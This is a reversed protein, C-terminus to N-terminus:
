SRTNRSRTRSRTVTRFTTRPASTSAALRPNPRCLLQAQAAIGSDRRRGTANAAAALIRGYCPVTAIEFLDYNGGAGDITTTDGDSPHEQVCGANTIAGHPTFRNQGSNQSVFHTTIKSPGLFNAAAGSSDTLGSGIYVDSIAFGQTGFHQWYWTARDPNAAGLTLSPITLIAVDDYHVELMGGTGFSAKIEIYVWQGLTLPPLATHALATGPTANTGNASSSWPYFQLQGAADFAITLQAHASSNMADINGPGSELRLFIGPQIVNGTLQFNFGMWWLANASVVRSMAWSGFATNFPNLAAGIPVGPTARGPIMAGGIFSPAQATNGLATAGNFDCYGFGDILQLQMTM